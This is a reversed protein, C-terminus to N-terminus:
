AFAVQLWKRMQRTDYHKSFPENETGPIYQFRFIGGPKLVRYTEQMYGLITTGELHQFLLVSYVFDFLEPNAFPLTRGDNVQYNVWNKPMNDRDSFRSRAIEIMELSIDIGHGFVNEKQAVEFSLRGVGCGLDLFYFPDEPLELAKICEETSIDSIYKQDVDPDLAASDWYDKEQQVRDM